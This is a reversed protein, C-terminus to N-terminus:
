NLVKVVNELLRKSSFGDLYQYYEKIFVPNKIDKYVIFNSMLEHWNYSLEYPFLDELEYYLERDESLYSELGFPAIIANLGLALADFYISSYDTILYGYDGLISYVDSICIININKSGKVDLIIDEPLTNAPHLKIDLFLGNRILWSDVDNVNFGFESLIDRESGYEGRYTPMYIIKNSELIKNENFINDLKPYGANIIKEKEIDFASKLNIAVNESPSLLYVDRKIINFYPKDLIKKIIHKFKGDNNGVLANTLGVGSAICDNGIKKIPTGHWLNFEITKKNLAFGLLDLEVACSYFVACTRMHLVIAKFTYGYIVPLGKNVMEKYLDKNRTYWFVKYGGNLNLLYEYFYKPNDSYKNGFWSGFIYLSKDVPILRSIMSFLFSFFRNIM